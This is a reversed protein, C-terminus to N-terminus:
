NYKFVDYVTNVPECQKKIRTFVACTNNTQSYTSYIIQKMVICKTNNWRVMPAYKTQQTKINKMKKKGIMNNYYNVEMTKWNLKILKLQVETM